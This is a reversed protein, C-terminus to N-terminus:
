AIDPRLRRKARRPEAWRVRHEFALAVARDMDAGRLREGCIGRAEAFRELFPRLGRRITDEKGLAIGFACPALESVGVNERAHFLDRRRREGSRGIAMMEPFPTSWASSASAAICTPM